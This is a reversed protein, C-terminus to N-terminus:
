TRAAVYAANFFHSCHCSIVSGGRRSLLVVHMTVRSSCFAAVVHTLAVAASVDDCAPPCAATGACHLASGGMVAQQMCAIPQLVIGCVHQLTWLCHKSCVPTHVLGLILPLAVCATCIDLFVLVHLSLGHRCSVGASSQLLVNAAHVRWAALWGVLLRLISASASGIAAMRVGVQLQGTTCQVAHRLLLQLVLEGVLCSTPGCSVQLKSVKVM